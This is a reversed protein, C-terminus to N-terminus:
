FGEFEPLNIFEAIPMEMRKICYTDGDLPDIGYMFLAIDREFLYDCRGEVNIRYVEIEAGECRMCIPKEITGTRPWSSKIAQNCCVCKCEM